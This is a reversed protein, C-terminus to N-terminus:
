VVGSGSAGDPADMKSAGDSGIQFLKQLGAFKPDALFALIAPRAFM